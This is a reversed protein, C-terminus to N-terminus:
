VDLEERISYKTIYIADEYTNISLASIARACDDLWGAATKKSSPDGAGEEKIQLSSFNRIESFTRSVTQGNSPEVMLVNLTSVM